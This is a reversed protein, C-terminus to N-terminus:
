FAGSTNEGGIKRSTKVVFVMFFIRIEKRKKERMPKVSPHPPPLHDM